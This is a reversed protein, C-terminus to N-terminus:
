IFEIDKHDSLDEENTIRWNIIQDGIDPTTFTIDPISGSAKKGSYNAGKQRQHGCGM